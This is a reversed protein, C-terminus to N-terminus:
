QLPGKLSHHKITGSKLDMVALMPESLKNELEGVFTLWQEHPLVETLGGMRTDVTWAISGDVNVRSLHFTREATRAAEYVLLYGYPNSFRIVEGNPKARLFAANHMKVGPLHTSAALRPIPGSQATVAYLARDRYTGKSTSNDSLQTGPKLETKSEEEDALVLWEGSPRVVATTRYPGLTPTHHPGLFESIPMNAISPPPAATVTRESTVDVGTIDAIRLWVTNGVMGLVGAFQSRQGSKVRRNLPIVRVKGVGTEPILWLAYSYSKDSEKRGQLTPFYPDCTEMLVALHESTRIVRGVPRGYSKVGIPRVLLVGMAIAAAAGGVVLAIWIKANM